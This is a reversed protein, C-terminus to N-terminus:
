REALWQESAAKQVLLIDRVHPAAAQELKKGVFPINVDLSGDIAVETHDDSPSLNLSGNFKAPMGNVQATLTGSTDTSWQMALTAAFTSGVFRRIESPADLELRVSPNDGPQEVHATGGLEKAVLDFWKPDRMMERVTAPDTPVDFKETIQMCEMTVDGGGSTPVDPMIAVHPDVQVRVGRHRIAGISRRPEDEVRLMGPQIGYRECVVVREIAEAFGLVGAGADADM